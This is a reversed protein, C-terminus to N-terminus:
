MEIAEAREIQSFITGNRTHVVVRAVTVLTRYSKKDILDRRVAFIHERPGHERGRARSNECLAEIAHQLDQVYTSAQENVVVLDIVLGRARLYEQMRLANAVIELDAQDGIRIAFIPFDGSIGLPWLSAQTALGTAIAEAPRRM